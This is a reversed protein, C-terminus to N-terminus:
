VFSAETISISERIDYVSDKTVLADAIEEIYKEMEKTREGDGCHESSETVIHM